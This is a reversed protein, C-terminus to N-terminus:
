LRLRERADMLGDLDLGAGVSQLRGDMETMSEAQEWDFFRGAILARVSDM